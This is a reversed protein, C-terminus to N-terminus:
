ALQPWIRSLSVTLIFLPRLVTMVVVAATNLVHGLVPPHLAAVNRDDVGLAEMVDGAPLLYLRSPPM